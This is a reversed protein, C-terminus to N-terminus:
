PRVYEGRRRGAVCYRCTAYLRRGHSCDPEPQNGKFFEISDRFSARFNPTTYKDLVDSAAELVAIARDINM